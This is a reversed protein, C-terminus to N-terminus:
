SPPFVRRLGWAVPFGCLIGGAGLLVTQTGGLLAVSATFFLLRRLALGMSSQVAPGTWSSTTVARRVLGTAAFSGLALAGLRALPAVGAIPLCAPFLLLAAAVLLLTRPTRSKPDLTVDDELRGLRSVVFVYLGYGLPACWERWSSVGFAGAAVLGVGLNGARCLALLLPGSWPGRGALDYLAALVAIGGVWAGARPAALMALLAGGVLLGLAVLFVASASIAGAPLPRDPRVRADEERDAWDNLALGGHYVCLSAGVLLLVSGTSPLAGRFGLLLGAVVDAAATPALSLRLVRGWSRIM